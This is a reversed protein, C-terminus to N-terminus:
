DTGGGARTTSIRRGTLSGLVAFTPRSYTTSLNSGFSADASTGFLSYNGHLESGTTSLRPTRTIFQVSGGISDSGYQASSPGRLVEVDSVVAPDVLDFFTSVGGRAAATSYRQGDVYVSVKAGTLGRVFIFRLAQALEPAGATTLHPADVLHDPEVRM